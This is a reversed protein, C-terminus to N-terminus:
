QFGFVKCDSYMEVTALSLITRTTFETSYKIRIWVYKFNDVDTDRDM